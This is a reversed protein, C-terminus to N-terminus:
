LIMFFCSNKLLMKTLSIILFDWLSDVFIKKLNIDKIMGRSRGTGEDSDKAGEIWNWFINKLGIGILFFCLLFELLFSHCVNFEFQEGTRFLPEWLISFRVSLFLLWSFTHACEAQLSQCAAGLSHFARLCSLFQTRCPSFQLQLEKQWSEFSVLSQANISLSVPLSNTGAAIGSHWNVFIM